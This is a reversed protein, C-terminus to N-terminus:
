GRYHGGKEIEKFHVKMVELSLFSERALYVAAYLLTTIGIAAFMVTVIESQGLLMETIAGCIAGLAFTSVSIYLAVLANRFWRARIVLHALFKQDHGEMSMDELIHHFEDHIQGYRMSTSQVLLSVGPMILLPMIWSFEEM